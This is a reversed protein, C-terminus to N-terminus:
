ISVFMFKDCLYALATVSVVSFFPSFFNFFHPRVQDENDSDSGEPAASMEVFNSSAPQPQSSSSGHVAVETREDTKSRRSPPEILQTPAARKKLVSSTSMRTQAFLVIFPRPTNETAAMM